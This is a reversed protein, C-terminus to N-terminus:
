LIFGQAAPDLLAKTPTLAVPLTVNQAVVLITRSSTIPDQPSVNWDLHLHGPSAKHASSVPTTFPLPTFLAASGPYVTWPPLHLPLSWVLSSVLPSGSSGPPLGERREAQPLPSQSDRCSAM